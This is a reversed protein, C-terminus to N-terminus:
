PCSALCAHNSCKWTPATGNACAPSELGGPCDYDWVCAGVQTCRLEQISGCMPCTDRCYQGQACKGTSGYWGCGLGEYPLCAGAHLVQVGACTAECESGYTGYNSGCVPTGPSCKCCAGCTPGTDCGNTDRGGPHSCQTALCPPPVPVPCANCCGGSCSESGWPCDLGSSCAPQDYLCATSTCQGPCPCTLCDDLYICQGGNCQRDTHCGAVCQYPAVCGPGPECVKGEGCELDSTCGGQVAVCQAPCPCSDCVVQECRESVKCDYSDRCGPMCSKPGTGCGECIQGYGCEADSKCGSMVCNGPCCPGCYSRACSEGKACDADDWCGTVCTKDGTCEMTVTNACVQGEGCEADSACGVPKDYCTGHDCGCGACPPPPACAQDPRCEKDTRCGELCHLDCRGWETGCVMGAPCETDFQCGEKPQCQGYCPCDPCNYCATLVCAEGAACQADGHCGAVCRRGGGEVDPFDCVSGSPCQADSSCSPADQCAGVPDGCRPVPLECVEGMACDTAEHCGALCSKKGACDAFCNQGSPCDHDSECGPVGCKFSCKGGVCAWDGICDPAPLGQCACQEKVECAGTKGGDWPRPAAKSSCTGRDCFAVLPNCVPDPSVPKPCDSDKVCVLVVGADRGPNGADRGPEAGGDPDGPPGVPSFCAPLTSLAAALAAVHVPRM